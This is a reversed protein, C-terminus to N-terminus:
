SASNSISVDLSAEFQEIVSFSGFVLIVDGPQTASNVEDILEDFKTCTTIDDPLKAALDLASLSREGATDVLRWADPSRAFHQEAVIQYVGCHDKDRLMGCVVIQPSWGRMM